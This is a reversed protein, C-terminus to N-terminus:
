QRRLDTRSLISDKGSYTIEKRHLRSLEARRDPQRQFLIVTQSTEVGDKDIVIPVKFGFERISNAVLPVAEENRRPNNEYPILEKLNKEVIQMTLQM